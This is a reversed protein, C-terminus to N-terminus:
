TAVLLPYDLQGRGAGIGKTMNVDDPSVRITYTYPSIFHLLLQGYGNVLIDILSQVLSDAAALYALKNLFQHSRVHYPRIQLRGVGFHGLVSLPLYLRLVPGLSCEFVQRM